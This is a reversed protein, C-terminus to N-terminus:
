SRAPSGRAQESDRWEFRQQDGCSAWFSRWFIRLRCGPLEMAAHVREKLREFADAPLGYALLGKRQAETATHHWEVFLYSLKCLAEAGADLLAEVVAYEAGEVDLRLAVVASANAAFVRRLLDAVGFSVGFRAEPAGLARPKVVGGPALMMDDWRFAAASRALRHPGYTVVSVAARVASANALSGHVFRVDAGSRARLDAERQKLPPMLEAVAEFSRVCWGRTASLPEMLARRQAGTMASWTRPYCRDPASVACKFFSGRLFADVSEGLNSGADIFLQSCKDLELPRWLLHDLHDATMHAPESSAPGFNISVLVLLLISALILALAMRPM